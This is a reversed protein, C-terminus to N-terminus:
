PGTRRLCVGSDAQSQSLHLVSRVSPTWGPGQVPSCEPCCGLWAVVAQSPGHVLAQHLAALAGESQCQGVSAWRAAPQLPLFARGRYPPVSSGGAQSPPWSEPPAQFDSWVVFPPQSDLFGPSPGVLWAVAPDQDCAWPLWPDASVAVSSHQGRVLNPCHPSQLWDAFTSADMWSSLSWVQVSDLLWHQVEVGPAIRQDHLPARPCQSPLPLRLASNPASYPGSRQRGEKLAQLIQRPTRAHM